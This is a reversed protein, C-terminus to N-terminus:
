AARKELRSPPIRGPEVPRSLILQPLAEINEANPRAPRGAATFGLAHLPYSREAWPSLSTRSGDFRKLFQKDCDRFTGEDGWAVIVLGGGRGGLTAFVEFDQLRRNDPGAGLPVDFRKMYKMDPSRYPCLYLICLRGFGHKRAFHACLEAEVDKEGRKWVPPHLLVFTVQRPDDSFERSVRILQDKDNSKTVRWGRPRAIM